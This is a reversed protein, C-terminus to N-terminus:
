MQKIQKSISRKVSAFSTGLFFLCGWARCKWARANSCLWVFGTTLFSVAQKSSVVSWRWANQFLQVQGWSHVTPNSGVNKDTLLPSLDWLWWLHVNTKCVGLCFWCWYHNHTFKPKIQMWLVGASCKTHASCSRWLGVRCMWKKRRLTPNNNNKM